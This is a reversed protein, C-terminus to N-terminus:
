GPRPKRVTANSAHAPTSACSKMFTLTSSADAGPEEIDAASEPNVGTTCEPLVERLWEIAQAPENRLAFYLAVGLAAIREPSCGLLRIICIQGRRINLQFFCRFM